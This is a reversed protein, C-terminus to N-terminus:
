KIEIKKVEGKPIVPLKLKLLGNEFSAEIKDKDYGNLSYAAEIRRHSIGQHVYEKETESETKETKEIKLSLKDGDIQITVNNKDYGALAYQIETATINGKKDKLQIVDCPVVQENGFCKDFDEMFGEILEDWASRGFITPSWDQYRRDVASNGNEIVLGTSM